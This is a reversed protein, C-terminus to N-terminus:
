YPLNLGAFASLTFVLSGVGERGSSIQEYPGGGTSTVLETTYSVLHNRYEVGLRVNGRGIGGAVLVYPVPSKVFALGVGGAAEFKFIDGPASVRMRIDSSLLPDRGGDGYIRQPGLPLILKCDSNLLNMASANLELELASNLSRAFGGAVGLGYGHASNYRCSNQDLAAPVTGAFLTARFEHTPSAEQAVAASTVACLLAAVAAAAVLGHM